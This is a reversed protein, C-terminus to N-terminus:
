YYCLFFFVSCVFLHCEFLRRVQCVGAAGFLQIARDVVGLIATPVYAKIMAIEKRAKRSGFKDIKDACDLVLQRSTDIAIRCQAIQM